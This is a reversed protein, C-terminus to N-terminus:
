SRIYFLYYYLKNIIKDKIEVIDISVGTEKEISTVGKDQFGCPNILKFGDLDNNVNLSFGHMTCFRNCRIGIACIKRENITGRGLWVGPSGEIIEGKIGYDKLVEIVIDELILVYNKVGIGRKDLDIIPYVVLQGPSHFTVDGGREIEVTEIGLQNLRTQSVLVNRKEARRGLTIVPYHEGILIFEKETEGKRKREVLESFLKKQKDHIEHYPSLGFDVLLM